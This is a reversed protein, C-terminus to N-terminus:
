GNTLGHQISMIITFKSIGHTFFTLVFMGYNVSLLPINANCIRYLSQKMYSLIQSITNVSRFRNKFLRIDKFCMNGAKMVNFKM